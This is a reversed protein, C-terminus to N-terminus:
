DGNWGKRWEVANGIGLFPCDDISRGEAKHKRGLRYATMEVENAHQPKFQEPLKQEEMM